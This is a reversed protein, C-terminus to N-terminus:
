FPDLFFIFPNLSQYNPRNIRRSYKYGIQYNDSIKQQLFVTPFFNLYDDNDRLKKTVSFGKNDTYEARLGGQVVWKDSLTASVNTYAAYINEKYIFHNSRKADPMKVGDATEYFRLENDSKVHSAKAGLELKVDKNFSKVFDAKASY